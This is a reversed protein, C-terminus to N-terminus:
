GDAGRARQAAAWERRLLAENALAQREQEAPDIRLPAARPASEWRRERRLREAGERARRHAAAFAEPTYVFPEHDRDLVARWRACFRAHNRHTVFLRYEKGSSAGRHHVARARPDLLV